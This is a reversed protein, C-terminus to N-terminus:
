TQISFENPDIGWNIWTIAEQATQLTPPVRLVHIQGTSPCNMKLLQIPEIDLEDNIKLLEYEQWSDLCITQLDQCIKEYGIRQILVRRLEANNEELLWKAQWLNPSIKGYKEPLTVGHYAYVKFGDTFEIAPKGEAHLLQQNDFSLQRPRDCILCLNKYPYIWGCNLCLQELLNALWHKSTPEIVSFYYAFVACNLALFESYIYNNLRLWFGNIIQSVEIQADVLNLLYANLKLCYEQLLLYDITPTFIEEYISNMIERKTKNSCIFSEIVHNLKNWIYASQPKGVQNIGRDSDSAIWLELIAEYPSNCFIIQPKNKGLLNYLLNVAETAKEKDIPKTSLAIKCWKERYASILNKQEPTLQNIEQNM